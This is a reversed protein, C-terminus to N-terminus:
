LFHRLFKFIFILHFIHSVFSFNSYSFYLKFNSYWFNVFFLDTFIYFIYFELKFIFLLFNSLIVSDKFFLSFLSFLLFFLFNAAGSKSLKSKGGFFELYSRRDKLCKWKGYDLFRLENDKTIVRWSFFSSYKEKKAFTSSSAVIFSFLLVCM